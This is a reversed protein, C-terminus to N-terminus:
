RVITKATEPPSILGSSAQCIVEYRADARLPSPDKWECEPTETLKTFPGLASTARYVLFRSNSGGSKNSGKALGKQLCQPEKGNEAGAIKVVSTAGKASKMENLAVRGTLDCPTAQIGTLTSRASAGVASRLEIEASKLGHVLDEIHFQGCYTGASVERLTSRLRQIKLDAMNGPEGDACIRYLAPGTRAVRVEAITVPAIEARGTNEGSQPVKQALSRAFRAGLNAFGQDEGFSKAQESLGQFVQGTNFLLGGREGETNEIRFQEKGKADSFVLTGDISNYYGALFNNRAISALQLDLFSQVGYQEALKQRGVCATNECAEMVARDDLLVFGVGQLESRLLTRILDVREKRMGAPYNAPLLAIPGTRSLSAATGESNVVVKAGCAALCFTILVLALAQVRFIM